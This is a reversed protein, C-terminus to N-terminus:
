PKRSEALCSYLCGLRAFYLAPTAKIGTLSQVDQVYTEVQLKHKRAHSELEDPRLHDTKFDIVYWNGHADELLLDLRGSIKEAGSGGQDGRLNDPALMLYPIEHFCRKATAILKQLESGEYRELMQRGDELLVERMRPHVVGVGAAIEAMLAASPPAANVLHEMIAHFFTGVVTDELKIDGNAPTSRLTAQWNVLPEKLEVLLASILSLDTSANLLDGAGSQAPGSLSSKREARLLDLKCAIADANTEISRYSAAGSSGSLALVGNTGAPSSSYHELSDALWQRFSVARKGEQALFVALFDRARTMAVYLLRKRESEDMERELRKCLLFLAPRPEGPDRTSDLAIGYERNFLLKSSRGHVDSGLYPLAVAPFELGKSGHITMLKVSDGSDLPAHSQKVRLARMQDLINIFEFITKQKYQDSLWLLKFLNRSKQRGGPMALLVVDYKTQDIIKRVVHGLPKVQAYHLLARLIRVARSLEPSSLSNSQCARQCLSWLSERQGARLAHLVDDPVAFLPSRLVGALAHSDASRALFRLVNEVDHVEQRFLFGSAALTVYPIELESLADEIPGFLDNQQVLVAFDGFRIPRERGVEKDWILEEAAVKEAIWIAVAQAELKEASEVQRDEDDVASSVTVVDIRPEGAQEDRNAELPQFRAHYGAGDTADVMLREFMNNVFCVIGPHSRFSRSLNIVQSPGSLGARSGTGSGNSTGDPYSVMEAPQELTGGFVTRWENFISVDAGQFKYISQKDDGILFLRTEEGALLHILRAQLSNTDQFEDVLIAKVTENYFRRAQSQPRELVAYASQILDNFDLRMASKKEEHFLQLVRDCLGVIGRILAFARVDEENLSLPMDKTAGDVINKLQRIAGRLEKAEPTNGGANGVPVDTAAMLETLTQGAPKGDRWSAQAGSILNLFKQRHEELLGGKQWPNGSVYSVFEGWRADSLIQSVARSHQGNMLKQCHAALADDSLGPLRQRSEEFLLSSGVLSSLWAKIQEIPYSLLLLKGEKLEQASAEHLATELCQELLEARDLDSVIEFRPDIKAEVPFAKLISECLSHITGIKAGDVAGLCVSWREHEAGVSARVLEQMRLKLRSRMEDAAKSTYTVAILNSVTLESNRKLIELYREVLVHTKGSGAGASVLVHCDISEVSRKQEETLQSM